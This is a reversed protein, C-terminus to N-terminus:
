VNFILVAARLLPPILAAHGGQAAWHLASAGEVDRASVDAKFHLLTLVVDMHGGMAAIHLPTHQDATTRPDRAAGAECLALALTANGYRGCWHLAAWGNADDLDVSGPQRSCVELLLAQDGERVSYHIQALVTALEDPLEIGDGM